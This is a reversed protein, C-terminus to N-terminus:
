VGKQKLFFIAKDLHAFFAQYTEPSDVSQIGLRANARVSTSNKGQERITVTMQM